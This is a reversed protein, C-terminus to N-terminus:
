DTIQINDSRIILTLCKGIFSHNVEPIDFFNIVKYGKYKEILQDVKKNRGLSKAFEQVIVINRKKDRTVDGDIESGNEDNFTLRDTITINKEGKMARKVGDNFSKNNKSLTDQVLNGDITKNKTISDQIVMDVRDLFGDCTMEKFKSLKYVEEFFKTTVCNESM